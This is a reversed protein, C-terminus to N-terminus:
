AQPAPLTKRRRLLVLLLLGMAAGTPSSSGQQCGCGASEDSPEEEPVGDTLDWEADEILVGAPDSRVFETTHTVQARLLKADAAVAAPDLAFSLGTGVEEGDVFWLVDLGPLDPLTIQFEIPATRTAINIPEIVAPTASVILTSRAHFRKVTAEVCVACLESESVRMKCSPAPRFIGSPHYRAGEYAGIPTIDSTALQEPSPLFPDEDIWHNWKIEDFVASLSVNDEPAIIGQNGTADEYEDALRAISHGFEHLAIFPATEHTSSTAVQGGTGGYRDDNVLLLVQDADPLHSYVANLVRSNDTCLARPIGGCNFRTNFVNLVSIGLDPHSAGSEPSETVFRYVNFLVRYEDYPRSSFLFEAIADADTRFKDTDAATYGDAVIVINIQSAPPGNVGIEELSHSTHAVRPPVVVSGVHSGERALSVTAGAKADGLPIWVTPREEDWHHGSAPGDVESFRVRGHDAVLGQGRVTAQGPSELSFGLDASERFNVPPAKARDVRTTIETGDEAVGYLLWAQTGPAQVTSEAPSADLENNPALGDGSCAAVALFSLIALRSM